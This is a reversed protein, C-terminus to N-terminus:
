PTMPAYHRAPRAVGGGTGGAPRGPRTRRGDARAHLRALPGVGEAPRGPSRRRVGHLVHALHRRGARGTRRLCRPPLVLTRSAILGAVRDPVRATLVDAAPVMVRQALDEDDVIRALLATRLGPHPEIAVIEAGPFAAALMTTGIGTGAGVDVLVGTAPNLGALAEALAPGPERWAQPLLVAVYEGTRDYFEASDM